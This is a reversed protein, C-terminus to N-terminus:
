PTAELDRVQVVLAVMSTDTGKSHREGRTVLGVSGVGIPHRVDDPGAIWGEGVLPVFLQGFGAEHAGIEGGAELTVVHAHAEGSGSVFSNVWAGRSDFDEILRQDLSELDIVRMAAM